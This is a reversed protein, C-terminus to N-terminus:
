ARGCSPRLMYERTFLMHVFLVSHVVRHVGVSIESSTTASTKEMTRRYKVRILITGSMREGREKKMCYRRGQAVANVAAM